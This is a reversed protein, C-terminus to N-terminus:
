KRNTVIVSVVSNLPRKGDIHGPRKNACEIRLHRRKRLGSGCQVGTRTRNYEDKRKPASQPSGKITHREERRLKPIGLVPDDEAIDRLWKSKRQMDEAVDRRAM